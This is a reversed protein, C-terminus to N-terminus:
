GQQKAKKGLNEIHTDNTNVEKKDSGGLKITKNRPKIELDSLWEFGTAVVFGLGCVIGVKALVVLSSVM